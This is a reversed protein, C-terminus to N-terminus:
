QGNEVDIVNGKVSTQTIGDVIINVLPTNDGEIVLMQSNVDYSFEPWEPLEIFDRSEIALGLPAANAM